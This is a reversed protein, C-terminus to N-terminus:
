VWFEMEHNQEPLERPDRGQEIEHRISEILVHIIDARTNTFRAGYKKIAQM